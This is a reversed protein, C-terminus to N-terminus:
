HSTVDILIQFIIFNVFLSIEDFYFLYYSEIFFFFVQSILFESKLSHVFELIDWLQFLIKDTIKGNKKNKIINTHALLIFMYAFIIIFFFLIRNPDPRVCSISNISINNDVFYNQFFYFNNLKFFFSQISFNRTM